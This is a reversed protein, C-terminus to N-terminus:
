FRRSGLRDLLRELTGLARGKPLSSLESRACRIRRDVEVRCADFAGCARILEIVEGLHKEHYDSVIHILRERDPSELRDIAEILPLTVKGEILDLCRGKGTRSDGELDLIDDVLQFAVGLELGFRRMSSVVDPTAGAIMAAGECCASFPGATKGQIIEFHQERSLDLNGISAYQAMEATAIMSCCRTFVDVISGQYAGGLGFGQVFLFDGAILAEVPTYKEHLTVVGRRLKARDNMDDHVLTATHIMEFALAMPLIEERAEGGCAEHVLLAFLPRLRKGGAMLVYRSLEVARGHGESELRDLLDVLASEILELLDSVGRLEGGVMERLIVGHATRRRKHVM